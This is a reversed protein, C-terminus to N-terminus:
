RGTSYSDENTNVKLETREPGKVGEIVMQKAQRKLDAKTRGNRKTLQFQIGASIVVDFPYAYRYYYQSNYDPKYLSSFGYRVQGLVHFEIPDFILAFGAGGKIGYDFRIDYDYFSTTYATDFSNDGVREVKMRYGGYLGLNAQIRFNVVDYHFIALLPVELYDYTAQVAGDVSPRSGTEKNLRTKYGDQGYFVGAQFGFYPMYGFMKGFKTFTVGFNRPTLLMSQDKPPNFMMRNLAVGYQFGISSYDNMVVKKKVNVTDLYEKTYIDDVILTDRAEAADARPGGTVFLSLAVIMTYLIRIDM